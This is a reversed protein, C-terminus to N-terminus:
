ELEITATARDTAGSPTPFGFLVEWRGPMHFLLGSVHFRGPGDQTVRTRYNMGHRHEPMWADVTLPPIAAGAARACVSVAMTFPQGVAPEAPNTAFFLVYATAEARQFPPRM